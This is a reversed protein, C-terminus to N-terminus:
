SKAARSETIHQQPAQANMRCYDKPSSGVLHRFRRSLHSQDAFGRMSAAERDALRDANVATLKPPHQAQIYRLARMVCAVGLATLQRGKPVAKSLGRKRVDHLPADQAGLFHHQARPAGKQPDGEFASHAILSMECADKAPDDSDIGVGPPVLEQDIRWGVTGDAPLERSQCRSAAKNEFM